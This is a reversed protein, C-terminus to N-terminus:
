FRYTAIVNFMRPQNIAGMYAGSFGPIDSHRVLVREDTLNKGVLSLSWQHDKGHLGVGFDLVTNSAQHSFRNQDPHTKSDDNFVLDLNSSFELSDGIISTYALGINAMWQPADHLTNGSLDQFCPGEGEHQAKQAATCGATKYDDYRADTYAIAGTLLFEDSIKWRGDLEVGRSYSKAANQTVFVNGNFTSVQLNDFESYFLAFNLEAAGGLLTTKGGFELASASEEEFQWGEGSLDAYDFGGGKFGETATFYLMTDDTMDYQLTLLPTFQNESRSGPNNQDPYSYAGWGFIRLLGTLAPNPAESNFSTAFHEKVASKDEASYRGGLVIRLDENVAYTAQAFLSWTDADQDFNRKSGFAPVPALISANIRFHNSAYFESQQYYVGMVLDWSDSLSTSLRLEQSFQEFEDDTVSTGLPVPTFDSDQYIDSDYQSYSSISNITYNDAEYDVSIVANNTTLAMGLAAIGEPVSSSQLDLRNEVLPDFRKFLPAFRGFSTIQTLTGLQESDAREYKAYVSLEDSPEWLLSVRAVDSKNLIGDTPNVGEYNPVLAYAPNNANGSNKLYGEDSDSTKLTLRASLSETLSGTLYGSLSHGGYEGEYSATVSGEFETSPRATTVNVAGAITNKGFLVSQPGRLAEVRELDVLASNFQSARGMYVGDIFMGVSLEFGRNTGSGIGRMKITSGSATRKIDLSPVYKSIEEMNNLSLRDLTDGSVVNLSIPVDQLGQAKKQATVVIEELTIDQSFAYGANAFAIASFMLLPKRNM